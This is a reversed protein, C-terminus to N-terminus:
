KTQVERRKKDENNIKSWIVPYRHPLRDFEEPQLHWNM